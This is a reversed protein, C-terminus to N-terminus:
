YTRGKWQGGRGRWHRIASTITMVTYLMATFPLVTTEYPPRAYLKLTPWFTRAMLAWSVLALFAAFGNGHWGITLVIFPPASYIMLMAAITGALLLPSCNLQVYATRAVMNWISSLSRNDRISIAEHDSLGLWIKTSPTMGKIARALACDDILEGKFTTVGGITKLTDRRVLMCGGAAAATKNTIDNVWSFPYLMQFFYIFAPILLAGWTGRVDLRAMLSTLALNDHEAKAVLRMLAGPALIIDADTLLIYKSEPAIVSARELGNHMAWLKGTWHAPLEPVTIVDIRREYRANASALVNAAIEATSDSSHDDAVIVVIKGPYTSDMHASVVAGITASENRAPIVVVIEPWIDSKYPAETLRHSARWFGGRMWTLNIWAALTAFAFLTLMLLQNVRRNAVRWPPPGLSGM